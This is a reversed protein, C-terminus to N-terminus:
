EARRCEEAIVEPNPLVEYDKFDVIYSRVLTLIEYQVDSRRLYYKGSARRRTGCSTTCAGTM